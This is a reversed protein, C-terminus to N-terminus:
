ADAKAASHFGLYHKRNKSRHTIERVGLSALWAKFFEWGRRSVLSPCASSISRPLGLDEAIIKPMQGQMTQIATVFVVGRFKKSVVVEQILGAPIGYADLDVVDFATLDLGKIVKVNDGHLHPLDLDLRNDVAVRNIKKGALREVAAWVVGHGGFVDLVRPSELHEIMGIRLAVKDALYHNDTKTAAM